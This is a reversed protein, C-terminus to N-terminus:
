HCYSCECQQTIVMIRKLVKKGYEWVSVVRYGHFLLKENRGRRAGPVMRNRETESNPQEPCRRYTSDIFHIRQLQSIESLGLTRLNMWTAAQM